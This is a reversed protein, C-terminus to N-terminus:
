IIVIIVKDTTGPYTIIVNGRGEVFEIREVKLVGGNEVTFPKLVDLVYNSALNEKPILGQAPSNQLSESVGILKELLSLFRPENMKVNNLFDAM